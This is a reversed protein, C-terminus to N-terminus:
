GGKQSCLSWSSKNWDRPCAQEMGARFLLKRKKIQKIQTPKKIQDKKDKPDFQQCLNHSLHQVHWKTLNLYYLSALSASSQTDAQM